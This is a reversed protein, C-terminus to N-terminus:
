DDEIHVIKFIDVVEVPMEDTVLHEHLCRCRDVRCKAFLINDAAKAPIFKDDIHIPLGPFLRHPFSAAHQAFLDAADIKGVSTAPYRDADPNCDRPAILRKVGKVLLRVSRQVLDLVSPAVPKFDEPKLRRFM